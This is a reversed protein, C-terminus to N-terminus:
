FHMSSKSQKEYRPPPPPSRGVCYAPMAKIRYWQLRKCSEGALRTSTYVDDGGGSVKEDYHLRCLAKTQQRVQHPRAEVRVELMVDRPLDREAEDTEGKAKRKGKRRKGRKGAGLRHELM